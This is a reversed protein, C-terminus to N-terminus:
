RLRFKCLLERHLLSTTLHAPILTLRIRNGTRTGVDALLMADPDRWRADRLGVNNLGHHESAGAERLGANRRWLM